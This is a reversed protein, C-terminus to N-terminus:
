TLQNNVLTLIRNSANLMLDHEEVWSRERDEEGEEKLWGNLRM